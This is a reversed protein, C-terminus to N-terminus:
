DDITIGAASASVGLGLKKNPIDPQATLTITANNIIEAPDFENFGGGGGFPDNYEASLQIKSESPKTKTLETWELEPEYREAITDHVFDVSNKEALFYKQKDSSPNNM